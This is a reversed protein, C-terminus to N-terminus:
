PSSPVYPNLACSPRSRSATTSLLSNITTEILSDARTRRSFATRSNKACCGALRLTQMGNTRPVLEYVDRSKLNDMEQDM